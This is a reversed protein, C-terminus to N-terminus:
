AVLRSLTNKKKKVNSIINFVAENALEILM